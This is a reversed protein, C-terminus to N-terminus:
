NKQFFLVLSNVPLSVQYTRRGTTENRGLTVNAVALRLGNSEQKYLFNIEKEMGDFKLTLVGNWDKKLTNPLSYQISVTGNSTANREIVSPVLRSFNTWRFNNETEFNITGYYSSKYLPGNRRISDYLEQRRSIEDSILDQINVDEPLSIFNYTRPMGREDTYQVAISKESHVSVQIPTDDFKYVGDDVKSTGNFKYSVSFKPLVLSVTGSSFGTDFGFETKMNELDINKSNVMSNYFDPYWKTALFQELVSDKEQINAEAAGEGYTGDANMAFLRLNYSFCWGQVGTSTLVRLWKGELNSKGNTPIAGNGEYLTRIIEGKRLRYVQKSTNVKDQRIPLGDLVCSAYKGQYESLSAARKQAKSKSEPETLKWLPVEVKQTLPKSKKQKASKQASKSSQSSLTAQATASTASLAAQASFSTAPTASVSAQASSVKAPTASVSAQPSSVKASTASVSAQAFSSASTTSSNGSSTLLASKVSSSGSSSFDASNLSSTASNVPVEIVYVQSINSKIYVPVITGDAINYEDLNWLVVSYGLINQCSSFIFAGCFVASLTLFKFFKSKM